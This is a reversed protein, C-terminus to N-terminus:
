LVQIKSILIDVQEIDFTNKNIEINFHPFEQDVVILQNFILCMIKVHFQYQMHKYVRM